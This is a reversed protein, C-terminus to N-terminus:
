LINSNTIAMLLREAKDFEEDCGMSSYANQKIAVLQEPKNGYKETLDVEDKMHGKAIATQMSQTKRTIIVQQRIAMKLDAGLKDHHEKRFNARDEESLNTFDVAISHDAGEKMAALARSLRTRFAGDGQCVSCKGEEIGIVHIRAGCGCFMKAIPLSIHLLCFVVFCRVAISVQLTRAGICSALVLLKGFHCRISVYLNHTTHENQQTAETTFLTTETEKKM